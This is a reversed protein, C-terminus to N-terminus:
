SPPTPTPTTAALRAASEQLVLSRYIFAHTPTDVGAEAGLRIVAGNQAELESPRGAMIDRQMSSTSTPALADFARLAATVYDASLRVGQAQAVAVIERLCAEAMARSGPSTRWGGVPARTVAGVGGWTAIFAFKEWIATHIDPAIDARIGAGTLAALLREVRTSRDNSIEGFLISPEIAHHVIHGPAVVEAVIRCVGGLVPGPGLHETLERSADVGNLLPLVMTDPGVLRPLQQAVEALQWAKVAVIVIDVPGVSAVDDTVLAPHIVFDGGASDVRLGRERIALLHRGRAIFHV